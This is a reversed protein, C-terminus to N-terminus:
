KSGLIAEMTLSITRPAGLWAGNGATGALYALDFLNNVTIRTRLTWASTGLTWNTEAYADSTAYRPLQWRNALDVHRTGTVKHSGGLSFRGRHWSVSTVLMDRPVGSVWNDRIDGVELAVDGGTGNYHSHNRTYALYVMWSDALKTRGALEMGRSAIGGANRYVGETSELFDPGTVDLNDVFVIRNQFLIDYWTAALSVRGRTYRLGLEINTAREPKTRALSSAPRELLRDSFAKLNEAYGAFAELSPLARLTVGGSWLVRPDSLASADPTEGFLDSRRIRVRHVKAGLNVRLRNTTITEEVYWKLSESPYRYSYQEWYPVPEFEPGIRTDTIEHWDRSEQRTARELWLGIHLLSRTGNSSRARWEVDVVAGNRTKSYHTHRYSQVARANAVHCAPDAEPGSGGYPFMLSSVCGQMPSLAIGRPDVFYILGLLAGGRATQEGLHESEAREGDEVVDVLYPPPWDGRGNNRHYYVGTEVRWRDSDRSAKLYTFANERLTSWAPRYAQDIHPVGTWLGTLRDWTPDLEFDRASFLRQYNDEHTDDWSAYGTLAVGRVSAQFKTAAHTRKNEASGDIWDTATQRSASLWGRTGSSIPGTDFRLYHKEGEFAARTVLLSLSRDRRPDDTLFELTGGLAENSRSGIDATGQTVVVGGLNLTDIYRNAKAGGGYNSDGNPMGDVTIGLQQEDLDVKFGRMSITTSWDDFGFVDGEQVSIGQLSDVVALVSTLPTESRAMEETTVANAFAVERRSVVMIEEIDATKDHERDEAAIAPVHSCIALLWIVCYALSSGHRKAQFDSLLIEVNCSAPLLRHRADDTLWLM